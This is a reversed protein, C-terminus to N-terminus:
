RRRRRAPRPPERRPGRRARRRAIDEQRPNWFKQATTSTTRCATATGDPPPAEDCADGIGDGDADSQDANGATPCNDVGDAVDDGDYDPDDQATPAAEPRQANAVAPLAILLALAILIAGIHPGAPTAM